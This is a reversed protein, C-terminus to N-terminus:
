GVLHVFPSHLDVLFTRAADSPCDTPDWFSHPFIWPAHCGVNAVFLYAKVAALAEPTPNTGIIAIGYTYLNAVDVWSPPEGPKLLPRAHAGIVSEPRGALIAGVGPSLKAAGTNYPTDVYRDALGGGIAEEYIRHWTAIPNPDHDATATHHVTTGFAHVGRPKLKAIPAPPLGSQARTLWRVEIRDSV